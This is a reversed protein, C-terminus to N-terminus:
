RAAMLAVGALTIAVGVVQGHNLREDLLKRALLVTIVPYLSAAVATLSLAGLTTALTFVSNATAELAGVAAVPLLQRASSPVAPRALGLLALACAAGACKAILLTSMVGHEASADILVLALGITGAAVISLGIAHWPSGGAGPVLEDGDTTRSALVVGAIALVIGAAPLAGLREGGLVGAVVPVATGTAVIPAVLGMRGLALAHYFCGLGAVSLAGALLAVLVVDGASGPMGVVAALLAYMVLAVLQSGALVVLTSMRRSQQGALFDSVGWCLSAGLGLSLV